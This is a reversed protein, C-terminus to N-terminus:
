YELFGRRGSAQEQLLAHQGQFEPCPVDYTWSVLGSCGYFADHWITKVSEPIKIETLGSCYAFSSIGISIISNPITLTKLNVCGNFANDGISSIENGLVVHKLNDRCYQTICSPSVDSDWFLTDVKTCEEFAYTEVSTVSSPVSITSLGSCYSFAGYGIEKVGTPINITTLSTCGCFAYAGIEEISEPLTVSLLGKCGEFAEAGIQSVSYTVTDYTVEEPITITGSYSHYAGRIVSVTKNSSSIIGYWIGDSEFMQAFSLSTSILALILVITRKRM